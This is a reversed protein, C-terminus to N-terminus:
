PLGDSSLAVLTRRCRPRSKRESQRRETQRLYALAIRRLRNKESVQLDCYSRIKRRCSLTRCRCRILWGPENMTTSYDFVLEEGPEIRRLAYLTLSGKVFGLNPECSHNLFDD